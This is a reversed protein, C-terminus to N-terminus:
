GDLYGDISVKRYIGISSTHDFNVLTVGPYKKGLNSFIEKERDQFDKKTILEM